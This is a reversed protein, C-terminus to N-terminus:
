TEAVQRTLALVAGRSASYATSGRAGVLGAISAINVIEGGGRWQLHAVVNKMGLWVGKAKIGTLRSKSPSM